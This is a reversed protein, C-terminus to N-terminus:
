WSITVPEPVPPVSATQWVVRVGSGSSLRAIIRAIVSSPLRRIALRADARRWWTLARSRVRKGWTPSLVEPIGHLGGVVLEVSREPKWGQAAAGPAGIVSAMCVALALHRVAAALTGIFESLHPHIARPHSAM